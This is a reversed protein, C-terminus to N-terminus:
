YYEEGEEEERGVEGKRAEKSSGRAGQGAEGAQGGGEQARGRDCTRGRGRWGVGLDGLRHGGRGTGPARPAPEVSLHCGDCM